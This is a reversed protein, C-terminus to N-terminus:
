RMVEDYNIATEHNLQSDNWKCKSASILATGSCSNSGKQGWLPIQPFSMCHYVQHTLHIQVVRTTHHKLGMIGAEKKWQRGRAKQQTKNHTLYVSKVVTFWMIRCSELRLLPLKSHLFRTWDFKPFTKIDPHKKVCISSGFVPSFITHYVSWFSLVWAKM